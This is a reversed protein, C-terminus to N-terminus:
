VCANKSRQEGRAAEGTAVLPQAFSSVGRTEEVCDVGIGHQVIRVEGCGSTVYMYDTSRFRVVPRWALASLKGRGAATDCFEESVFLCAEPRYGGKASVTTTGHPVSDITERVDDSKRTQDIAVCNEFLQLDFSESLTLFTPDMKALLYLYNTLYRICLLCKGRRSPLGSGQEFANQQSPTLFETLVFAKDSKPGYRMKAIVRGMCRSGCVCAREGVQKQPPRLFQDDYDKPIKELQQTRIMQKGAMNSLTQLTSAATAETSCISHLKQFENLAHEEKAYCEDPTTSPLERLLDDGVQPCNPAKHLKKPPKRRQQCLEEEREALSVPMGCWSEGDPSVATNAGDSSSSAPSTNLNPPPDKTNTNSAVTVAARKRGTANKASPPMVTLTGSHKRYLSIALANYIASQRARWQM